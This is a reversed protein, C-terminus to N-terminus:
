NSRRTWETATACSSLFDDVSLPPKTFRETLTTVARLARQPSVDVTNAAFESPPVVQIGPQVKDKPFHKLNDTVIAGAQGAVAAALVHEDDIDPLGFTGEFPEWNRVEADDFRTRMAEILRGAKAEAQRPSM